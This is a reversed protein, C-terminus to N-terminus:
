WGVFSPTRDGFDLHTCVISIFIFTVHTVLLLQFNQNRHSSLAASILLVFSLYFRFILSISVFFFFLHLFVIELSKTSWKMLILVMMKLFYLIHTNQTTQSGLSGVHGRPRPNMILLVQELSHSRTNKRGVVCLCRVWSLFRVNLSPVTDFVCGM